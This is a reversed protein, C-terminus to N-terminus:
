SLSVAMVYKTDASESATLFLAQLILFFLCLSDMVCFANKKETVFVMQSVYNIYLEVTLLIDQM